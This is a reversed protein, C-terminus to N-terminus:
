RRGPDSNAMGAAGPRAFRESADSGCAASSAVALSLAATCGEDFRFDRAFGFVAAEATAAADVSAVAESSTALEAAERLPLSSLSAIPDSSPSSVITCDAGVGNTATVEGAASAGGPVSKFWKM